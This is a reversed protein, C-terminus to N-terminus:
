KQCKGCYFTSRGVQTLRTIPTSCVRCPEGERDYVDFRHQFYGSAGASDVYDRLTSGGSAIAEELVAKVAALLVAVQKRNLKNAPREPNIGTRYLAEAAYINGVGVVLKQDMLVPKISQKRKQLQSYLYEATFDGGLPEPGMHQLLPHQPMESAAGGTMLGFRRPDNFVVMQGDNLMLYVHDHKQPELPRSFVMMRGSMGLHGLICYGNDLTLLLYKARREVSEVRAGQVQDAFDPPIPIRIKDRRIIVEDIHRGVMAARLGRAVTEVEPLEPM